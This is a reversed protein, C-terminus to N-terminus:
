RAGKRRPLGTDSDETSATPDVAILVAVPRSTRYAEEFALSIRKADADREVLHYRIGWANLVPELFRAASDTTVGHRSWGRYGIVMVLPLKLELTIGRLSDGAEFLGTSQILVVPRKGGMTLGAAIAMSEGEQSVPVLDLGAEAEMARWMWRTESDPLTVVHTVGNKKLEEMVATPTLLAPQTM